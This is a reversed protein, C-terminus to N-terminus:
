LCKRLQPKRKEFSKLKHLVSLGEGGWSVLMFVKPKYCQKSHYEIMAGKSVHLLTCGFINPVNNRCNTLPLTLFILQYNHFSNYFSNREETGWFVDPRSPLYLCSRPLLTIPGLTLSTPQTYPVLLLWQLVTSITQFSRGSSSMSLSLRQCHISTTLIRLSGMKSFTMLLNTKLSSATAPCICCVLSVHIPKLLPSSDSWSSSM